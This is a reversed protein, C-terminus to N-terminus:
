DTTTSLSVETIPEKAPTRKQIKGNKEWPLNQKKERGKAM